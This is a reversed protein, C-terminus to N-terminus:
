KQQTILTNIANEIEKLKEEVSAVIQLSETEISCDGRKIKESAEIQVKHPDIQLESLNNTIFDYDEPNLKITIKEENVPVANLAEKLIAITVERDMSIKSAVIKEAIKFSLKLIQPLLFNLQQQKFNALEQLLKNLTGIVTNIEQTKIKLEENSKKIGEKYGKNFGEEYGQNYGKEYGEKLKQEYTETSIETKEEKPKSEEKPKKKEDFSYPIFPKVNDSSWKKEM